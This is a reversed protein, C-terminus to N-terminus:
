DSHYCCSLSVKDPGLFYRDASARLALHAEYDNIIGSLARQAPKYARRTRTAAATRAPAATASEADDIETETDDSDSSPKAAARRRAVGGRARKSEERADPLVANALKAEAALVIQLRSLLAARNGSVKILGNYLHQAGSAKLEASLASSLSLNRLKLQDALNCVTWSFRTVDPWALFDLLEGPKLRRPAARAAKGDDVSERVRGGSRSKLEAELRQREAESVRKREAAEAETQELQQLKEREQEAKTPMAAIAKRAEARLQQQSVFQGLASDPLGVLSQSGHKVALIHHLMPVRTNTSNDLLHKCLSLMRESRINSFGIGTASAVSESADIADDSSIIESCHAELTSVVSVSWALIRKDESDSPQWASTDPLDVGEVAQSLSQRQEATSARNGDLQDRRFDVEAQLRLPEALARAFHPRFNELRFKRDAICRKHVEHLDCIFDNHVALDPQSASASLPLTVATLNIFQLQFSFRLYECDRKLWGYFRTQHQSLSHKMQQAFELQADLNSSIRAAAIDSSFFRVPTVRTRAKDDLRKAKFWAQYVPSYRTSKWWQICLFHSRSQKARQGRKADTEIGSADDIKRMEASLRQSQLNSVHVHCSFFQVPQLERLRQEFSPEDDDAAAAVSADEKAELEALQQLEEKRAKTLLTVFGGNRGTNSSENDSSVEEIRHLWMQQRAPIRLTQQRERVGDTWETLANILDQAKKGRSLETICGFHLEQECVVSQSLFSKFYYTTTADTFLGIPASGAIARAFAYSELLSREVIVRTALSLSNPADILQCGRGSLVTIICPVAQRLPTWSHAVLNAVIDRFQATVM